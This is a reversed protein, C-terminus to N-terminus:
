PTTELHAVMKIWCGHGGFINFKNWEREIAVANHEAFGYGRFEDSPTSDEAFQNFTALNSYLLFGGACAIAFPVAISTVHYFVNFKLWGGLLIFGDVYIGKVIARIEPM